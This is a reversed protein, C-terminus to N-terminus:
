GSASMSALYNSQSSLRAIIAEMNTFKKQLSDQKDKLQTQLDKIQTEYDRIANGYQSNDAGIMTNSGAVNFLTGDNGFEGINKKIVNKLRSALGDSNTFLQEVKDHQSQLTNKLKTDDLVLKGGSSYDGQKTSIGIDSLSLGVSEVTNEMASRIDSQLSSLQPDCFLLGQQAKTNWDDIEKDTMTKKQDDTLPDYKQGSGNSAGVSPPLTSVDTNIKDIIANYQDVFDSIKKYLDDVNGSPTFKISPDTSGPTANLTGKINMTIGDLTFSNTSRTITRETGGLNVDMSLDKGAQFSGGFKASAPTNGLGLIDNTGTKAINLTSGDASKFTLSKGDTSVGVTVQGNLATSNISTQVDAAMASLSTYASNGNINISVPTGGNLAFDYSSSLDNRQYNPITSGVAKATLDGSALSTEGFLSATLNGCGAADYIEIKGNAGTDDSVIRFQNLTQSYSVTVNATQDDNITNIVTNLETNKDFTFQKGNIVFKYATVDHNDKDKITYSSSLPPNLENTQNLEDLTKDLELRNSEGSRIHLLGDTDLIGNCSSSCFTLVSTPDSPNTTISLKGGSQAVTIKGSGYASDLKTQLYTAIGAATSYQSSDSQDFTITKTVGNLQVTLESGALQNSLSTLQSLSGSQVKMSSMNYSGDPMPTGLGMGFNTSSGTVTAGSLTINGGSSSFAITGETGTAQKIADNIKKVAANLQTTIKTALSAQGSADDTIGTTDINAGLQLTYNQGNASINLYSSSAITSGMATASQIVENSVQGGTYSASTALNLIKDIVVNGADSQDGTATVINNNSSVLADTDFFARSMINTSSNTSYSFYTDQFKQLLDEVSRFADRKWVTKQEMQKEKDIKASINATLAKILNQTDLGSYFESGNMRTTGDMTYFSPVASNVTATSM